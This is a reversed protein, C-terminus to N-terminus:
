RAPKVVGIGVDRLESVYQNLVSPTESLNAVKM